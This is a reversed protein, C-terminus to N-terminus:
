TINTMHGTGDNELLRAPVDYDTVICDLDGDNDIDSFNCTVAEASDNLGYSAADETYNNNGDNVFLVDIRRGDGPDNVGQRCKAIYLDIDGDNEFDTWVSGYNGSDDTPTVDFDIINSVNFMGTGDNLWIHSEDNDDCAFVDEWGDNNIDAFNANQLFFSSSPLSFISG